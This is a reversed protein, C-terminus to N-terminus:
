CLVQEKEERWSVQNIFCQHRQVASGYEERRLELRKQGEKEMTQMVFHLPCSSYHLGPSSALATCTSVIEEQAVREARRQQLTKIAAQQAAQM